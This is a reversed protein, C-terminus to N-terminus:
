SANPYRVVDKMLSEVQKPKVGLVQGAKSTTLAGGALLRATLELLASGLRHRRVVYFDPGGTRERGRARRRDVEDFWRERFHEQLRRWVPFAIRRQRLLNYAVM